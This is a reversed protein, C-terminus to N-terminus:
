AVSWAWGGQLISGPGNKQVFQSEWEVHRVPQGRAAQERLVAVRALPVRRGARGRSQLYRASADFKDAECARWIGQEEAATPNRASGNHRDAGYILWQKNAGCALWLLPQEM